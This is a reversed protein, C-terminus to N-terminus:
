HGHHPHGAGDQLVSVAHPIAEAIAEGAEGISKPSGPFNIILSRGRIGAVGRSLMWNRTHERSAARLAEAIGPAEREIVARTAEPTVDDPAFGTGGTTLVLECRETDSYHRLAWEIESQKDPVIEAATVQAGVDQAFRALAPGSEDPKDRDSRSSSITLIAARM